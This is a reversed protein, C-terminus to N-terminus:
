KQFSQSTDNALSKLDGFVATFDHQGMVNCGQQQMWMMALHLSKRYEDQTIQGNVLLYGLNDMRRDLERQLELMVSLTSEDTDRGLGAHIIERLEGRDM